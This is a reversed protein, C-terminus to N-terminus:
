YALNMLFFRNRRNAYSCYFTLDIKLLWNYLYTQDLLRQYNQYYYVDEELLGEDDFNRDCVAVLRLNPHRDVCAKRKKGVVGFGAIGVKLETM